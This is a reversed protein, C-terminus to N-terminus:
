ALEDEKVNYREQVEHLATHAIEVYLKSPTLGEFFTDPRSLMEHELWRMFKQVQEKTM